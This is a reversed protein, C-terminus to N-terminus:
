SEEEMYKKAEAFTNFTTISENFGIKDCINDNSVLFKVDMTKTSVFLNHTETYALMVHIGTNIRTKSM